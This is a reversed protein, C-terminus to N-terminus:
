NNTFPPRPVLKYQAQGIPSHRWPHDAAPRKHGIARSGVKLAGTDSDGEGKGAAVKVESAQRMDPKSMSRAASQEQARNKKDRQRRETVQERIHSEIEPWTQAWRDSCVINRLALMANVHGRAWHMGAGKLRAEVVLKNASEIAGSGIPWGEERFLGYQMQSERKDLYALAERMEPVDGHEGVLARLEPLMTSGGEHKLRHLQEALWEKGESTGEGYAGQGIAAVYQAAHAFDLIRVADPRHYDTFGQIWEAGDSVVGVQEAQEIGRISTEVLSLRSFDESDTLRSFSSVQNVAVQREGEAEVPEGAHGIVMTKVEAWEGGVLPVMAGDVEMVEKEAIPQSPALEGGKELQAVSQEQIAVYAAGAQETHRRATAASVPTLRMFDTLLQAAKEFPMWAGLRVLAEQLAPTLSGPLLGLEEDLPFFGAEARPVSAM